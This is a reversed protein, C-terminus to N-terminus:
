ANSKNRRKGRAAKLAADWNGFHHIAARFLSPTQQRVQERSACRDRLRRQLARRTKAKTWGRLGGRVFLHYDVGAAKVAQQWTGFHRRGAAHLTLNERLMADTNLLKGQEHRRRIEALVKPRPWLGDRNRINSPDLGAARLAKSWNGFHHNAAFCFRSLDPEDRLIANRCLTEGAEYRQQMCEIIRRKTWRGSEEAVLLEYDIGAAEVAALGSGYHRCCAGYLKPYRDRLDSLNAFERQEHLNQLEELISERSWRRIRRVNEYDLGAAEVAQQWSGFSERAQRLLPGHSTRVSSYNLPTKRRHLQKIQRVVSKGQDTEPM